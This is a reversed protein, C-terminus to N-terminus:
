ELLFLYSFGYSRLRPTVTLDAFTNKVLTKLGPRQMVLRRNKVVIFDCIEMLVTQYFCNSYDLQLMGIGM